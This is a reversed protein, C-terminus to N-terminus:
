RRLKTSTKQFPQIWPMRNHMDKLSSTIKYTGPAPDHVEDSVDRGNVSGSGLTIEIDDFSVLSSAILLSPAPRFLM